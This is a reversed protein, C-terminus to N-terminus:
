DRKRLGKPYHNKVTGHVIKGLGLPYKGVGVICWGDPLDTQLTEGRLYRESGEIDLSVFRKVEERKLAMALAHAPKFIKGEVTGLEVGMRLCPLNVRPFEEPVLYLRGERERIKGDIPSVFFDKQFAEFAPNPKEPKETKLELRSGDERRFLATYHGEGNERHPYIKHEYLLRFERHTALFEKTQWEDEEESFTCTSYLLLGGGCVAGAANGLIERQRAACMAVNGESWEDAALPNKRFMGEGSCPADVLVKDFYSPFAEAVAQSSASTVLANRIGLREINQSLIKARSYEYENSVLIGEGQLAEGLQASKGGPAACLDLVREGRKVELLPAASMASPEQSYYLGAFHFVHAGAKEASVYFGDKDWPVPALSFPSLETFEERSLKLSNVRVGKKPAEEMSRLFAPYEGGLREQMRKLFEEPLHM